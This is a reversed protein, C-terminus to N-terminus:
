NLKNIIRILLDKKKSINMSTEVAAIPPKSFHLKAKKENHTLKLHRKLNVYLGFNKGCLFCPWVSKSREHITRLHIQLHKSTM